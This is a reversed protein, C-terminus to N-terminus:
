HQHEVEHEGQSEHTHTIHHNERTESTVAGGQLTALAELIREASTHNVGSIADTSVHISGDKKITVSMRDM